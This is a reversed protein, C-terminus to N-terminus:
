TEGRSYIFAAERQCLVLAMQMHVAFARLAEERFHSGKRRGLMRVAARTHQRRNQACDPSGEIGRHKVQNCASFDLTLSFQQGMGGAKLKV